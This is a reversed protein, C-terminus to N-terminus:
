WWQRGMRRVCRLLVVSGVILVFGAWAANPLPAVTPATFTLIVAETGSIAGNPAGIGFPPLVDSGFNLEYEDGAKLSGNSLLPGFTFSGGVNSQVQNIPGILSSSDTVDYLSLQGWGASSNTGSGTFSDSFSYILDSNVTFYVFGGNEGVNANGANASSETLRATFGSDAFVYSGTASSSGESITTSYAGLPTSGPFNLTDNHTDGVYEIFSGFNSGDWSVSDAWVRAGDVAFLLFAILITRRM